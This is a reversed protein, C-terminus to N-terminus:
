VASIKKEAVVKTRYGYRGYEFSAHCGGRSILSNTPTKSGALLIISSQPLSKDCLPGVGIALQFGSLDSSKLSLLQLWM